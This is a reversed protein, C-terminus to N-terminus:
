RVYEFSEKLVKGGPLVGATTLLEFKRRESYFEAFYSALAENAIDAAARRLQWRTKLKGAQARRRERKSRNM